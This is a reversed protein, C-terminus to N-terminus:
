SGAPTQWRCMNWICSTGSTLQPDYQAYETSNQHLIAGQVFDYLQQQDDADAEAM